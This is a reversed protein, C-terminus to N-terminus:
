IRDLLEAHLLNFAITCSITIDHPQLQMSLKYCNEKGKWGFMSLESSNLKPWDDSGWALYDQTAHQLCFASISTRNAARGWSPPFAPISWFASSSSRSVSERRLEAWSGAIEAVNRASAAMRSSLALDELVLNTILCRLFPVRLNCTHRECTRYLLWFWLSHMIKKPESVYRRCWHVLILIWDLLMKFIDRCYWFTNCRGFAPAANCHM